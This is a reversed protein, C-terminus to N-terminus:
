YSPAPKPNTISSTTIFIAGISSASTNINTKIIATTISTITGIVLIM